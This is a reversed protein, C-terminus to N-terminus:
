PFFWMLNDPGISRTRGARHDAIAEDRLRQLLDLSRALSTDWEKAAGIEVRILGSPAAQETEARRFPEGLAQDMNAEQALNLTLGEASGAGPALFRGATLRQTL